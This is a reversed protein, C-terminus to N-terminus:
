INVFGNANPQLGTAGGQFAPFSGPVFRQQVTYAGPAMTMQQVPATMGQYMVANADPPPVYSASQVVPQAPPVYSRTQVMGGAPAAYQPAAYQPAAYSMVPAARVAQVQQAMPPAPAQVVDVTPATQVTTVTNSRTMEVKFSNPVLEYFEVNMEQIMPDQSLKALEEPPGHMQLSLLDGYKCLGDKLLLDVNQLHALVGEACTYAERCFAKDGCITFGYYLCMSELKAQEICQQCVELFANQDKIQFYPVIAVATDAAYSKTTVEASPEVVKQVQAREMVVPPTYSPTQQIVTTAGVPPPTYSPVSQMVPPPTYSPMGQTMTPQAYMVPQGVSAVTSMGMMQPAMTPPAYSQQVMGQPFPQGPMAMPQAVSGLYPQQM